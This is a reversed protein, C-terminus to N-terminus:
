TAILEKVGNILTNIRSSEFYITWFLSREAAIRLLFTEVLFTHTATNDRYQVLTCCIMQFRYHSGKKLQRGVTQYDSM